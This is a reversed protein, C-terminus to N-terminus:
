NMNWIALNLAAAYAIWVLYPAMLAAAARRHRRFAVATALIVLWLASIDAFAVPMSRLSFFLGSWAANLVLQVAYLTLAVRAGGWGAKRWVLWAAVAMCTYLVAWIPGFLWDPPTWSPKALTPYWTQVSTATFYSGIGGAAFTVILIAVLGLWARKM